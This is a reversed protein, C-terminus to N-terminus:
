GAVENCMGSKIAATVQQPVTKIYFRQTTRVDQHRLISQVLDDVGTGFGLDDQVVPTTKSRLYASNADRYKAQADIGTDYDAPPVTL